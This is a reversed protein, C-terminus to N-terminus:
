ISCWCGGDRVEGLLGPTHTHKHMCAWNHRVRQSGISPLGGPEEIWPIIGPLFEPTSQWKRSWPVKGIWFPVPKEQMEQKAPPNKIVSGDSLGQGPTYSSTISVAPVALLKASHPCPFAPSSDSQWMRLLSLLSVSSDRPARQFLLGKILEDSVSASHRGPSLCM